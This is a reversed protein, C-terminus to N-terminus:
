SQSVNFIKYADTESEGAESIGIINNQQPDNLCPMIKGNVTMLQYQNGFWSKRGKIPQQGM